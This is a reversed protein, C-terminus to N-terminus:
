NFQSKCFVCNKRKGCVPCENRQEYLVPIKFKPYERGSQTLSRIFDENKVPSVARSESYFNRVLRSENTIPYKEGEKNTGSESSLYKGDEGNMYKGTSTYGLSPRRISYEGGSHEYSGRSGNTEYGNTKNQYNNKM